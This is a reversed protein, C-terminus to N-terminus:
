HHSVLLTESVYEPQKWEDHRQVESTPSRPRTSYDEGQAGNKADEMSAHDRYSRLVLVTTNLTLIPLVCDISALQRVFWASM